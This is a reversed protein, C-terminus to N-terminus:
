EIEVEYGMEGNIERRVSEWFAAADTYNKFGVCRDCYHIPMKKDTGSIAGVHFRNMEYGRVSCYSKESDIITKEPDVYVFAPACQQGTYALPSQCGNLCMLFVIVSLFSLFNMMLMKPAQM